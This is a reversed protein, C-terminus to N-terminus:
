LLLWDVAIIILSLAAVVPNVFSPLLAVDHVCRQAFADSIEIM